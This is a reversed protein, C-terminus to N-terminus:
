RQMEYLAFAKCWAVFNFFYFYQVRKGAVSNIHLEMEFNYLDGFTTLQSCKYVVGINHYMNIMDVQFVHLILLVAHFNVKFKDFFYEVQVIELLLIWKVRVSYIEKSAHLNFQQKCTCSISVPVLPLSRWGLGIESNNSILFFILGVNVKKRNNIHTANNWGICGGM